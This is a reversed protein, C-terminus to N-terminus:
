FWRVELLFVSKTKEKLVSEISSDASLKKDPVSRGIPLEFVSHQSRTFVCCRGKPSRRNLPVTNVNLSTEVVCPRNFYSNLGSKVLVLM